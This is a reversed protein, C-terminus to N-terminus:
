VGGPIHPLDRAGRAPIEARDESASKVFAQADALTAFSRETLRSRWGDVCYYTEVIRFVSNSTPADLWKYIYLKYTM